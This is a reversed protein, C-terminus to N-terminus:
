HFLPSIDPMIGFPTLRESNQQEREWRCPVKSSWNFAFVPNQKGRGPMKYIACVKEKVAAITSSPIV